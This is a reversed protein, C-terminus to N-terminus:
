RKRNSSQMILNEMHAVIHAIFQPNIAWRDQEKVWDSHHVCQQLIVRLAEGIFHMM